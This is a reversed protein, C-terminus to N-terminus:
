TDWRSHYHELESDGFESESKVQQAQGQDAGKRQRDERILEYGLTGLSWAHDCHECYVKQDDGSAGPLMQAPQSCRFCAFGCVDSSARPLAKLIAPIRQKSKNTDPVGGEDDDESRLYNCDLTCSELTSALSQELQTRKTEEALLVRQNNRARLHLVYADNDRAHLRAIANQANKVRNDAFRVAGSAESTQSSTIDLHFYAENQADQARRLEAEANQWAKDPPQFYPGDYKPGQVAQRVPLAGMPRIVIKESDLLEKAAAYPSTEQQTVPAPATHLKFQKSGRSVGDRHDHDLPGIRLTNLRGTDEGVLLQRFDPSFAGSMIGGQFTAADQVLASRTARYPNWIKLVGDSSGSYLRSATAGWSLFRVGTDVLERDRDHDLENVSADHSLEHLARQNKKAFRKDWIYVKGNTAGAAILNDDYPCYVVDNIDLASCEWELVQRARGQSPAYLHIVSRKGEYSKGLGPACAVAFATSAASPSPNWAVDFVNRNLTGLPIRQGTESNWLAAEGIQGRTDDVSDSSFGALLLKSHQAATGWKLASPFVPLSSQANTLGPSLSLRLSHSKANCDYVRISGNAGLHCGTALVGHSNVSLVDVPAPHDIEYCCKTDRADEGVSYMRVKKDSGASYLRRGNPSFAVDAVTMFLRPDQSERMEHLGNVNGSEADITPRPVFHEPLEKLLSAESDGVLLNLGSNYEMNRDDSVAISGAAFRRGDPAWAMCTVDGSTTTTTLSNVVRHENFVHNKLEEPVSRTTFPLGRSALSGLERHRLLRSMSAPFIRDRSSLPGVETQHNDAQKSDSELESEEIDSEKVQAWSVFGDDALVGASRRARRVPAQYTERVTDPRMDKITPALTPPAPRPVSREATLEGIPVARPKVKSSYHSQMTGKTRGPFHLLIEDWTLQDEEKLKVLLANDAPTFRVKAGSAPADDHPIAALPMSNDHTPPAPRPVSREAILDGIPVTRPKVKSSYHSQMTGRTRGPFHLLIEDWSLQDKEKLKVLLANDAPTFRVKAGSTPASDHQIAALPMSTDITDARRRQQDPHEKRPSSQNKVNEVQQRGLWVPENDDVILKPVQSASGSRTSVRSQLHDKGTAPDSPKSTQHDERRPVSTRPQVSTPQQGGQLLTASQRKQRVSCTSVPDDKTPAARIQVFTRQTSASEDIRRRKFDAEVETPSPHAATRKFHTTPTATSRELAAPQDLIKLRSSSMVAEPVSASNSRHSMGTHKGNETERPLMEDRATPRDLPASTRGKHSKYTASPQTKRRLAEQAHFADFGRRRAEHTPAVGGLGQQPPAQGNAISSGNPKQPPPRGPSARRGDLMGLDNQKLKPSIAHQRKSPAGAVTRRENSRVDSPKLKQRQGSPNTAHGNTSNASQTSMNFLATAGKARQISNAAGKEKRPQFGDLASKRAKDSSGESESDSSIEILTAM